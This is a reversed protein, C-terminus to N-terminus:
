PDAKNANQDMSPAIVPRKNVLCAAAGEDPWYLLCPAGNWYLLINQQGIRFYTSVQRNATQLQGTASLIPPRVTSSAVTPITFWRSAHAGRECPWKYLM